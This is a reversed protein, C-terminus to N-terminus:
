LRVVCGSRGVALPWQWLRTCGTLAHHRAPRKQEPTTIASPDNGESHSYRNTIPKKGQM